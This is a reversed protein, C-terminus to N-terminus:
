GVAGEGEWSHGLVMRVAAEVDQAGVVLRQCAATRRIAKNVAYQLVGEIDAITCGELMHSIKFADLGPELMVNKAKMWGAVHRPILDRPPAQFEVKETFRGARLLALDVDQPHNTAAIFVVDKVREEAGDMLVLLRNTLDPTSSMQRNRLIEDAEDIFVLTPRIEMAEAYIKNIKQRDALLDPGSVALFAWGSAQALARAAATKGTGSPGFFLVGGPLTGGMSEIREVDKLRSAITELDGRTADSLVLEALSKTDAPVDGARGQVMRLAGMWQEFGIAVLGKEKAFTPMTKAIALIRSVSFGAWRRAVSELARANIDLDPGFKKIANQLLGIRALEDPPTIEVKLDFRGERVAAADLSSLHNTAGVLVVRAERLKVIETLMTNTIKHDESNGSASDRARIFSDLEDIFLVCPAQQATYAFVKSIVRPMEGLWKSSIDGYTMEIFPVNLEGALAEAFVTKGNGPDGHMLIGNTPAETGPNREALVAQSPALLKEKIAQMGFISAFTLKASRAAVPLLYADEEKAGDTPRSSNLAKQAALVGATIESESPVNFGFTPSKFSVYMVMGALATSLSAAWLHTVNGVSSHTGWLVAAWLMIAFGAVHLALHRVFNGSMGNGVLPFERDARPVAMYLRVWHLVLWFVFLVAYYEFIFSRMLAVSNVAWEFPLNALVLWYIPVWWSFMVVFCWAFYSKEFIWTLVKALWYGSNCLASFRVAYPMNALSKQPM